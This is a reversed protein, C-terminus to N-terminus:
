AEVNASAKAITKARHKPNRPPRIDLLPGAAIHKEIDALVSAFVILRKARSALFSQYSGDRMKREVESRSLRTYVCVEPVTAYKVNFAAPLSVAKSAPPPREGCAERRRVEKERIAAFLADREVSLMRAPTDPPFPNNRSNRINEGDTSERLNRARDDRPDRNKHDIVLMPDPWRNNALAFALRAAIITVNQGDFPVLVTVRSGELVGEGFPLGVRKRRWETWHMETQFYERPADLGTFIGTERDYALCRRVHDLSIDNRPKPM